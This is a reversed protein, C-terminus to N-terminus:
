PGEDLCRRPARNRRPRPSGWAPILLRAYEMMAEDEKQTTPYDTWPTFWDQYQLRASEPENYRNLDGVIQVAPGGTCLLIRYEEAEMEAGPQTWGSRV